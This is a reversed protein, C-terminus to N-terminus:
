HDYSLTPLSLGSVSRDCMMTEVNLHRPSHEELVTADDDEDMATHNRRHKKDHATAMHMTYETRASPSDVCRSYPDRSESLKFVRLQQQKQLKEISLAHLKVSESPSSRFKNKVKPTAVMGSVSVAASAATDTRMLEFDAPLGSTAQSPMPQEVQNYSVHQYEETTRRIPFRNGRHYPVSRM